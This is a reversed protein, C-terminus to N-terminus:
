RTPRVDPDDGIIAAAALAYLTLASALMAPLWIGDTIYIGALVACVFTVIFQIGVHIKTGIKV